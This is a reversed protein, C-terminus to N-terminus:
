DTILSVLYFPGKDEKHAEIIRIVLEHEEKKQQDLVTELYLCDGWTEEFNADLRVAHEKDGDIIVEAIPRPKAISKLYQISISSAEVKFTITDGEKKGIWGNKYLDLMATKERADVRFGNLKPDCNQIQYIKAQEFRNRTVPEKPIVAEEELQGLGDYAEELLGIIKEAVLTHGLDNPHLNDPTISSRVLKGDQIQAYLSERMSVCPIQYLSAVKNHYEEANVGTDYCVNNLIVVAPNTKAKYVQNLVGEFSEEFLENADDNVTFDVVVFDPQYMLLDKWARAAGYLSTTGGIGANIFHFEANPFKTKWWKYVLYAYCGEPTTALSGQTISGGLFGITYEGGKKALEMLSKIRHLNGNGVIGSYEKREM